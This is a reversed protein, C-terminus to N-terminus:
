DFILHAHIDCIYLLCDSIFNIAYEVENRNMNFDFIIKTQAKVLDEKVNVYHELNVIDNMRFVIDCLFYKADDHLKTYKVMLEEM